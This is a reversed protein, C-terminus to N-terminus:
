CRRKFTILAHICGLYRVPTHKFLSSHANSPLIVTKNFVRIKVFMEVDTTIRIGETLLPCLKHPTPLLLITTDHFDYVWFDSEIVKEHIAVKCKFSKKWPLDIKTVFFVNSYNM